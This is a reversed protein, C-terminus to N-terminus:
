SAAPRRIVSGMVPFSPMRSKGFAMVRLMGILMAAFILVAIAGGAGVLVYMWMFTEPREVLRCLDRARLAAAPLSQPDNYAPDNVASWGACASEFAAVGDKVPQPADELIPRPHVTQYPLPPLPMPQEARAGSVVAPAALLFLTALLPRNYHFM